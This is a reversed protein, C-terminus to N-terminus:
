DERDKLRTQLMQNQRMKEKTIHEAEQRAKNIKELKEVSAQYDVKVTSLEQEANLYKARGESLEEEVEALRKECVKLAEKTETLKDTKFINATDQGVYEQKYFSLEHHYKQNTAVLEDLRDQM